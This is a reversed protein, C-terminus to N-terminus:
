QKRKLISSFDISPAVPILYILTAPNLNLQLSIYILNTGIFRHRSFSILYKTFLVIQKCKKLVIMTNPCSLM